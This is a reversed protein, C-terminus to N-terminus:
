DGDVLKFVLADTEIDYEKKLERLEYSSESIAEPLTKDPVPASDIRDVSLAHVWVLPLVALRFLRSHLPWSRLLVDEKLIRRTSYGIEYMGLYRTYTRQIRSWITKRDSLQIRGSVDADLRLSVFDGNRYARWRYEKENAGIPLSSLLYNDKMFERSSINMNPCSFFFDGGRKERIRLYLEVLAPFYRSDYWDDADVHTVVIDGTAECVALNRAHGVGLPHNTFVTKFTLESDSAIEKIIRKSEDTSQDVIVIEFNRPLHKIITSLSERITDGM